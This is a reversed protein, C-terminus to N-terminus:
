GCRRQRLPRGGPLIIKRAGSNVCTTSVIINCIGGSGLRTLPSIGIPPQLNVGFDFPVSIM